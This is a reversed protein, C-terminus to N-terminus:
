RWGHGLNPDAPLAPRMQKEGPRFIAMIKDIASFATQKKAAVIMSFTRWRTRQDRRGFILSTTAFGSIHCPARDILRKDTHGADLLNEVGQRSLAARIGLGNGCDCRTTRACQPM